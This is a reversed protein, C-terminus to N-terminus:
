DRGTPTMDDNVPPIVTTEQDTVVKEEQEDKAQAPVDDAQSPADPLVSPAPSPLVQTPMNASSRLTAAESTEDESNSASDAAM